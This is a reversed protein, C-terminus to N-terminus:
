YDWQLDSEHAYHEGSATEVRQMQDCNPHTYLYRFDASLGNSTWVGDRLKIDTITHNTRKEAETKMNQENQM